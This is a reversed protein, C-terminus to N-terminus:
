KWLTENMQGGTHRIFEQNEENYRDEGGKLDKGYTENIENVIDDIDDDDDDDSRDIEDNLGEEGDHIQKENTNGDKGSTRTSIIPLANQESDEDDNDSGRRSVMEIQNIRPQPPLYYNNHIHSDISIARDSMNENTNGNSPSRSVSKIEIKVTNKQRNKSEKVQFSITSIIPDGDLEWVNQLIEAIRGKQQCEDLEKHYNLDRSQIHNLHIHMTIELGGKITKPRMIEILQHELGLEAAIQNRMTQVRNRCRDIKQVVSSGTVNFKVIAYGSSNLLQKATIMSAMTVIISITSFIMSAVAIGSFQNIKWLFITQLALQPINELLVISYVRKTQFRRFQAQTLSMSFAPLSFLNSNM